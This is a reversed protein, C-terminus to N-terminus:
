YTDTFDTGALDEELIHCCFVLHTINTDPEYLPVIRTVTFGAEKLKARITQRMRRYDVPNRGDGRRFWHVQMYHAWEMDDDDGYLEAKELEPNYVIWEDPLVELPCSLPWINGNVLTLLSNEIKTNVDM